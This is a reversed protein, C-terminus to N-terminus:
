EADSSRLTITTIFTIMGRPIVISANCTDESVVAAVEIADDTAAVIFGITDCEAPVADAEHWGASSAADIWKVFVVPFATDM